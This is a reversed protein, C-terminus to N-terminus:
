ELSVSCDSPTCFVQCGSADQLSCDNSGLCRNNKQSKWDESSHRSSEEDDCGYDPVVHKILLSGDRGTQSRKNRMQGQKDQDTIEFQRLGSLM